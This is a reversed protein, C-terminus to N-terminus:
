LYSIIIHFYKSKATSSFIARIMHIEDLLEHALGIGDDYGARGIIQQGGVRQDLEEILQVGGAIVTLDYMFIMDVIQLIM